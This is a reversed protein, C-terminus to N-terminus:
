EEEMKETKSKTEKKPVKKQMKSLKFAAGPNKEVDMEEVQVVEEAQLEEKMKAQKEIRKQKKSKEKAERDKEEQIADSHERKRRALSNKRAMIKQIRDSQNTQTIFLHCKIVFMKINTNTTDLRSSPFSRSRPHKIIFIIFKM